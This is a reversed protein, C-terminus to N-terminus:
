ERQHPECAPLETVLVESLLDMVRHTLVRAGLEPLVDPVLQRLAEPEHGTVEGIISREVGERCRDRIEAILLSGAAVGGEVERDRRPEEGEDHLLEFAGAQRGLVAAAPSADDDLLREAVVEGTSLLEVAHEPLDEGAPGDEPDIVIQALLRHLVQQRQAERVRQELGDPVGVVDIVDLDGHGLVDPDATTRPVVVADARGAVDDLVVQQM